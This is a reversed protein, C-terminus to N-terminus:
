RQFEAGDSLGNNPPPQEGDGAHRLHNRGPALLLLVLHHEVRRAQRGVFYREILDFLGQRRRVFVRRGTELNSLTLLVQNAAHSPKAVRVRDGGDGDFHGVSRWYEDPIDSRHSLTRRDLSALSGVICSRRHDDANLLLGGHIRQLQGLPNFEVSSSM